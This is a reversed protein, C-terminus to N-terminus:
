MQLGQKSAENRFRKCYERLGNWNDSRSGFEEVSHFDQHGTCWATGEAGVKRVAKWIDVKRHYKTTKEAHCDHCLVQCKALESLRRKKAWSWINHSVKKSPDIHDVELEDASGCKKCPGNALIWAAKREKVVALYWQHQAERQKKPDVYPM